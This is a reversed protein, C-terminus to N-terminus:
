PAIVSNRQDMFISVLDKLPEFEKESVLNFEKIFYLFHKFATTLHEDAGGQKFQKFHVHFMHAYIRFMRKFIVSVAQKFDDPFPANPETPMFDEKALQKDVWHLCTECYQPANMKTPTVYDEGDAWLYCMDGANMEPCSQPTCWEGTAALLLTTQNFIEVTQVALWEEECCDYPKKVQEALDASGLTKAMSARVTAYRSDRPFVRLPMMTGSHPLMTGTQSTMTAGRGAGEAPDM